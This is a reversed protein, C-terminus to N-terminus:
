PQGLYQQYAAIWDTAIERQAQEIPIRRHCAARHLYEELRDKVRANWPQTDL